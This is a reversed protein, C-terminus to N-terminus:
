GGPGNEVIIIIALSLAALHELRGFTTMVTMGRAMPDVIDYFWCNEKPRENYKGIVGADLTILV